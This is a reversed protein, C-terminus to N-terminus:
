SAPAKTILMCIRWQRITFRIFGHTRLISYMDNIWFPYSCIVLPSISLLSHKLISFEM